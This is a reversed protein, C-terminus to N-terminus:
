AQIELYEFIAKRTFKIGLTKCVIKFSDGSYLVGIPNRDMENLIRQAHATLAENFELNRPLVYKEPNAAYAKVLSERYVKSFQEFKEENM